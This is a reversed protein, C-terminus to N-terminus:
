GLREPRRQDAMVTNRGANKADYLARDASALAEEPRMHPKLQAIGFSATIELPSADPGVLAPNRVIHSRIRECADVAEAPTCGHLIVVFEDGGLRGVTDAARRCAANARHPDAGRRRHSPRLRREGAQLQRPRDDGSLLGARRPCDACDRDCGDRALSAPEAARDPCRDHCRPLRRRRSVVGKLHPRERIAEVLDLGNLRPMVWDTILLDVHEREIAELANLGDTVHHVGFGAAILTDTVMSASLRDDEALLLRFGGPLACAFETGISPEM